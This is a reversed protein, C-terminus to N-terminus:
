QPAVNTPEPTVEPTIEPATPQESVVNDTPTTVITEAKANNSPMTSQVPEIVTNEVKSNNMQLNGVPPTVTNTQGPVVTSNNMQLNGIPPSLTNSVTNSAKNNVSKTATNSSANSATNGITPPLTNKVPKSDAEVGPLIHLNKFYDELSTINEKFIPIAKISNYGAFSDDLATMYENMKVALKSKASETKPYTFPYLFFSAFSSVPKRTTLPLMAFITPMINVKIERKSMNNIYYNYGAKSIYFMTLWFTIKDSKICAYLTFLFFALRIPAAYIIMENAILMAMIFALFPYLCKQFINVFQNGINKIIRTASITDPDEDTSQKSQTSPTDTSLAEVKKNLQEKAHKEADPDTVANNIANNVKYSIKNKLRTLLSSTDSM